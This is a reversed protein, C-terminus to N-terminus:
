PTAAVRAPCTPARWAGGHGRAGLGTAATAPAAVDVLARAVRQQQELALVVVLRKSRSTTPIKPASISIDPGGQAEERTHAGHIRQDKGRVGFEAQRKWDSRKYLMENM